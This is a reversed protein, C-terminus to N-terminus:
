TMSVVHELSKLAMPNRQLELAAVEYFSTSSVCSYAKKALVLNNKHKSLIAKGAAFMFDTYADILFLKYTGFTNVAGWEFNGDVYHKEGRNLIKKQEHFNEHSLFLNEAFQRVAVTGTVDGCISEVAIFWARRLNKNSKKFHFDIRDQKPRGIINNLKTIYKNEDCIKIARMKNRNHEELIKDCDDVAQEFTRCNYDTM